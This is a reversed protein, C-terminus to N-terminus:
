KWKLEKGKVKKKKKKASDAAAIQDVRQRSCRVANSCPPKLTFTTGRAPDTRVRPLNLTPTPTTTHPSLGSFLCCKQQGRNTLRDGVGSGM